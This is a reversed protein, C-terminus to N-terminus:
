LGTVVIHLTISKFAKCKKFLTTKNSSVSHSVSQNISINKYYFGVLHV